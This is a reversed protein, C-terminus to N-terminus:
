ALTARNPCPHNVDWAQMGCENLCAHGTSHQCTDPGSDQLPFHSPKTAISYSPAAQHKSDVTWQQANQIQNAANMNPNVIIEGVIIESIVKFEFCLM